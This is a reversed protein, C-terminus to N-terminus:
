RGRVCLPFAAVGCVAAALGWKGKRARFIDLLRVGKREGEKDAGKEGRAAFFALSGRQFLPCVSM